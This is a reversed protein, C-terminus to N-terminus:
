WAQWDPVYHPGNELGGVSGIGQSPHTLWSGEARYARASGDAHAANALGLTQGASTAGGPVRRGHRFATTSSANVTWETGTWLMPPDLLATNRVQQGAGLAPLLADAFVLLTSPQLVEGVRRWPRTGITGGWGPTHLPSLYYGNYGYTSTISRSPGQPRYSGWPQSACEFVSGDALATDLYPALFGRGFDPPTTSTGHTGWWFVQPGSGVEQTRWYALPMARDAYDNAYMTWATLMQRLNSLCRVGRAADRARALAPALVGLLLAVLAIVVLLELLTFAGRTRM